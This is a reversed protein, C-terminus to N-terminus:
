RHRCKIGIADYDVELPSGQQILSDVIAMPPFGLCNQDGHLYQNLANLGYASNSSWALFMKVSLSEWYRMCHLSIATQLCQIFNYGPKYGWSEKLKLLGPDFGLSRFLARAKPDIEEGYQVGGGSNDINPQLIGWKAARLWNSSDFSTPRYYRLFPASTFGLWHAPYGPPLQDIMWRLASKENESTGFIGGIAVLPSTEIMREVDKPDIGRTLIPIPHLGADLMTEYNVMAAM